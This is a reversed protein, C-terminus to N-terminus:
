PSLPPTPYSQMFGTLCADLADFALLQDGTLNERLKVRNRTVYLALAYVLALLTPIYTRAM